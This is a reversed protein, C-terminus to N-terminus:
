EAVSPLWRYWGLSGHSPAKLEVNWGNMGVPLWKWSEESLSYMLLGSTEHSLGAEVWFWGANGIGTESGEDAAAKNAIDYSYVLPFHRDDIWGLGWDGGTAMATNKVGEVSNLNAFPNASEGIPMGDPVVQSLHEARQNLDPKVSTLELREWGLLGVHPSQLHLQLGELNKPFWAWDDFAKGYVFFGQEAAELKPGFYLWGANDNGYLSSLGYSYVWPYHQDDVWGLSAYGTDSTDKVGDSQDLAAFPNEGLIVSPAEVGPAALDSVISEPAARNLFPSAAWNSMGETWKSFDFVWKDSEKPLWAWSDSAYIYALLGNNENLDSLPQLVYIWGADEGSQSSALADSYVKPYGRDDISELQAIGVEDASKLGSVPDMMLREFDNQDNLVPPAAPVTLGELYAILDEGTPVAQGINLPSWGAWGRTRETLNQFRVSQNPPFWIWSEWFYDYALIGSQLTSFDPHIYLWGIKKAAEETILAAILAQQTTHALGFSYVYPFNRDDIVGLGGNEEAFPRKLGEANVETSVFPNVKDMTPIRDPPTERSDVPEVDVGAEVSHIAQLFESAPFDAGGYGSHEYLVEWQPSSPSDKVGNIVVFFPQVSSSHFQSFVERQVDMLVTEFGFEAAFKKIEAKDEGQVHVTVHVVPVGNLNSGNLKNLVEARMAEAAPPCFPCWWAFWEIVVISGEADALDWQKESFTNKEDFYPMSFLPATQGVNAMLHGGGILSLFGLVGAFIQKM